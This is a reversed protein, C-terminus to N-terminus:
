ASGNLVSVVKPLLLECPWRFLHLALEDARTKGQNLIVLSKGQEVAARCFRFSSYVMLSSGVVLVGDAGSLAAFVRDVTAKPVGDGYFVAHTKLVGGCRQCDPVIFDDFRARQLVADGDPAAAATVGIYSPNLSLLQDQLEARSTTRRCNMCIVEDVRGYLDVVDRSGAQQHLGDVNQTVLLQIYGLRELDVLAQHGANPLARSILNWGVLSRAWYRQRVAHQQMFDQHIIPAPRKWGGNEDRYDPIGSGTSLGAGTIVLWNRGQLM